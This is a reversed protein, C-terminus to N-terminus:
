GTEQIRPKTMNHQSVRLGPRIHQKQEDIWLKASWSGESPGERNRGQKRSISRSISFADVPNVYLPSEGWLNVGMGPTCLRMCESLLFAGSTGREAKQQRHHTANIDGEPLYQQFVRFIPSTFNRSLAIFLLFAMWKDQTVTGTSWPQSRSCNIHGRM